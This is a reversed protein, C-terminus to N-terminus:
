TRSDGAKELEQVEERLANVAEDRCQGFAVLGLEPSCASYSELKLALVTM